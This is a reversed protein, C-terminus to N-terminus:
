LGRRSPDRHGEPGKDQPSEAPLCIQLATGITLGQFAHPSCTGRPRAQQSPAAHPIWPEFSSHAPFLPSSAQGSWGSSGGDQSPSSRCRWARGRARGRSDPCPSRNRGHALLGLPVSQRLGKTPAWPIAPRSVGGRAAEGRGRHHRIDQARSGRGMALSSRQGCLGRRGAPQHRVAGMVAGHGKGRLVRTVKPGSPAASTGPFWVRGPSEGLRDAESFVM